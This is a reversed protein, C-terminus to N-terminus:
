KSSITVNGILKAPNGAVISNSPFVGSVVAGAGIVCNDGVTTGKLIISNAGVFVNDGINVAHSAKPEPLPEHRRNIAHVPHFDTDVVTSNAGFMCGNGISIFSASVVSTGSFGCDSGISLQATPTITKIVVGHNLGLVQRGSTSIATLRKGIELKSGPHRRIIATGVFRSDDGIPVEIFKLRTRMFHTTIFAHLANIM